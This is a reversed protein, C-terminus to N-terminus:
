QKLVLELSSTSLNRGPPIEDVVSVLNAILDGAKYALIAPVAIPIMEADQYNLKVFRTFEHKRALTSLADEVVGSVLSQRSKLRYENCFLSSPSYRM